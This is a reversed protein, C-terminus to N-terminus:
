QMLFDGILQLGILIETARQLIADQFPADFEEPPPEPTEATSFYRPLSSQLLRRAQVGKELLFYARYDERASVPIRVKPQLGTGLLSVGSAPLWEGTAVQCPHEPLVQQYGTATRGATPLGVCIIRGRAQLDALVVEIAGATQHNVLVLPVPRAPAQPWDLALNVTYPRAPEAAAARLVEAGGFAVALQLAQAVEPTQVFRCDLILGGQRPLEALAQSALNVDYLRVYVLQQGLEERYPERGTQTNWVPAEAILRGPYAAILGALAVATPDAEELSFAGASAEQLAEPLGDPWAHLGVALLACLGVVSLKFWNFLM